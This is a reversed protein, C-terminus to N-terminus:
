QGATERAKAKFGLWGRRKDLYNCPVELPWRVMDMRTGSEWYIRLWRQYFCILACCNQEKFGKLLKSCNKSSIGFKKAHDLQGQMTPPRMGLGTKHGM